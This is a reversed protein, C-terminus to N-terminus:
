VRYQLYQSTTDWIGQWLLVYSAYCRIPCPNPFVGYKYGSLWFNSKDYLWIRGIMPTSNPNPFPCAGRAWSRLPPLGGGGSSKAMRVINSFQFTHRSPLSFWAWSPSFDSLPSTKERASRAGQGFYNKGRVLKARRGQHKRHISCYKKLM